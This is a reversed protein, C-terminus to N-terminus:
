KLNEINKILKNIRKACKVLYKHDIDYVKKDFKLRLRKDEFLFRKGLELNKFTKVRLPGFKKQFRKVDADCISELEHIKGHIKRQQIGLKDIKNTLKNINAYARQYDNRMKTKLEEKIQEIERTVRIKCEEPVNRHKSRVKDVRARSTEIWLDVKKDIKENNYDMQFSEEQNVNDTVRSLVERSWYLVRDKEELLSDWTDPMRGVTQGM